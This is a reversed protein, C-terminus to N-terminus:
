AVLVSALAARIADTGNFLQRGGDSFVIGIFFVPIASAVVLVAADWWRRRQLAVLACLWLLLAAVPNAAGALFAAAVAIPRRWRGTGTLQDLAVLGFVMGVAF